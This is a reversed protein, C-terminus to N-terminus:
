TMWGGGPRYPAPPAARPVPKTMMLARGSVVGYRSCDMLHDDKKVIRGQEDRHYRRFESFWNQCNSMVKLQGSVLLQWVEQLGAEVANQAATLQLGLDYYMQMLERGDTAARGRAAPDIVGPIWEGRAKIAQAHSAPEGQAQYHEDYAVIRANDPNRALWLAATRRWGVDLAYARPWTDPIPFPDLRVDAEPLPYIAGAGLSPEGETRAAVQYGPTTALLMRKEDEDLHPVDKWGAQIIYKFQAAEPEPEVFSKVVESMGQLPTFTMLMIGRTTITRYMGEVYIELPPEEDWWIGDKATGEFSRRGQEYTKFALRSSSGDVHRIWATDISGELGNQRRSTHVILHAPIMGTGPAEPPGLLKAQVINRTTESNTGCAWWDSARRFRRGRWWAPYIGTLHNTVEFAGAESKGVRNAAM